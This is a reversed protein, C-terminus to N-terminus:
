GHLQLGREYDSFGEGFLRDEDVTNRAGKDLRAEDDESIPRQILQSTIRKPLSTEEPLSVKSTM